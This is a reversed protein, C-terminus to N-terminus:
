RRRARPVTAPARFNVDLKYYVSVRAGDLLAPEFRWQRLAELAALAFLPDTGPDPITPRSMEGTKDIVARITVSGEWRDGSRGPPYIPAPSVLKRPPTIEGRIESDDESPAPPAPSRQRLIEALANGGSGYRTLDLEALSPHLAYAVEVDWLGEEIEGQGARGIGRLLMGVGLYSAGASGPDLMKRRADEIMAGALREAKDFRGELAAQEAKELQDKWWTVVKGDRATNAGCIAAFLLM